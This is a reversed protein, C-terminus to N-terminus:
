KRVKVKARRLAAARLTLSLAAAFGLAAIWMGDAPHAHLDAGPHAMAPTTMALIAILIRM